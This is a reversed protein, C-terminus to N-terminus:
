SEDGAAETVTGDLARNIADAAQQLADLHRSAFTEPSAFSRPWLLTLAGLSRGQPGIPVAIAALLDDFPTEGLENSLRTGYGRRRAGELIPLYDAFAIGLRALGWIRNGETAQHLARVEGESRLSLCAIGSASGFLNVHRNLQGRYLQFPSFVRTSDIIQMATGDLIHLDSPWGVTRTLALAHTMATDAILALERPVVKPSIHPLTVNIRYRGDALSRRAISRGVLTAMLRRITSKPLGTIRHLEALSLSERQALAEMLSIGRDLSRNQKPVSWAHWRIARLQIPNQAVAARDCELSFPLACM